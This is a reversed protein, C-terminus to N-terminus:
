ARSAGCSTCFREGGGFESGCNRCFRHLPGAGGQGGAQLTASPPAPPALEHGVTHADILGDYSGSEVWGMLERARLVTWPHTAQLISLAKAAKDGVNADYDDFEQAQAMFGDTDAVRYYAPPLGAIKMLASVAAEPNQCALLGARDATFESKRQWSLLALQLGTTLINGFGFTAAGLVGGAIPLIQAMQQYLVHQSKIHGVEHGLVFLLEDYSLLSVCGSALAVLPREVGTTYANIFGQMIYLDPPPSLNLTECVAELARCEKPFASPTAKINSGTHQIRLVRDMGYEWFKRVATELGPAGELADLARKDTPHEYVRPDLGRLVAKVTYRGDSRAAYVTDTAWGVTAANPRLVGELPSRGDLVHNPNIKRLAQSAYAFFEESLGLRQRTAVLREDSRLDRRHLAAYLHLYLGLLLAQRPTLPVGPDSGDGEGVGADSAFREFVAAESPELNFRLLSAVSRAHDPYGGMGPGAEM